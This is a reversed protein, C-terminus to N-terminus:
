PHTFDLEGQGKGALTFSPYRLIGSVRLTFCVTGLVRDALAPSQGDADVNVPMTGRSKEPRYLILCFM